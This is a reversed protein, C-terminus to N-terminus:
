PNTASQKDCRMMALQNLVSIKTVIITVM